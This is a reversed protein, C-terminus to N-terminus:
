CVKTRLISEQNISQHKLRAIHSQTFNHVIYVIKGEKTEPSEVPGNLLRGQIEGVNRRRCHEISM